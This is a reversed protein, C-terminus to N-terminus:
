FTVGRVAEGMSKEGKDKHGRKLNTTDAERHELDGGAHDVEGDM